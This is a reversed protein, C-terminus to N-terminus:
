HVEHAVASDRLWDNVLSVLAGLVVGTVVGAGCLALSTQVFLWRASAGTTHDFRSVLMGAGHYSSRWFVCEFVIWFVLPCLVVPVAPLLFRKASLFAFIAAISVAPALVAGLNGIQAYLDSLPGMVKYPYTDVLDHRLWIAQGIAGISGTAVYVLLSVKDKVIECVFCGL